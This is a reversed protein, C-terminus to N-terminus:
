VRLDGLTLQDPNKVVARGKKGVQLCLRSLDGDKYDVLWQDEPEAKRCDFIVLGQEGSQHLVIDGERILSGEFDRWPATRTM